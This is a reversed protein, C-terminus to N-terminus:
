RRRSLSTMVRRKTNETQFWIECLALNLVRDGMLALRDNRGVPNIVGNYYLPSSARTLKLAEVAIIKNAFNYGICSEVFGVRAVADLLDHYVPPPASWTPKRTDLALYMEDNRQFYNPIFQYRGFRSMPKRLLWELFSGRRVGGVITKAKKGLLSPAGHTPEPFPEHTNKLAELHM